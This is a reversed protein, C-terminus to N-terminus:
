IKIKKMEEEIDLEKGIEPLKEVPKGNKMSPLRIRKEKKMKPMKIKGVGRIGGTRSKIFGALIM